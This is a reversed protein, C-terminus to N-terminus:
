PTAAAPSEAVGPNAGSINGSRIRHSMGMATPALMAPAPAPQAPMTPVGANPRSDSRADFHADARADPRPVDLAVERAGEALVAGRPSVARLIWGDAGGIAAGVRVPKAPKGDVAILAAGREPGHTVVGRLVFRGSADGAGSARQAGVAGLARAVAQVDAPGADALAGALPADAVPPTRVRWIWYLAGAALLAWLVFAALAAPLHPTALAKM